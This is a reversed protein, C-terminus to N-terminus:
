FSSRMYSPCAGGCRRAPLHNLHPVEPHDETHPTVPPSYSELCSQNPILDPQSRASPTTPVVPWWCRRVLTQDGARERLHHPKRPLIVATIRHALILEPGECLVAVLAAHETLQRLGQACLAAESQDARQQAGWAKRSKSSGLAETWKSLRVYMQATSSPFTLITLSPRTVHGRM